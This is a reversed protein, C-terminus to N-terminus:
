PTRLGNRKVRFGPVLSVKYTPSTPQFVQSSISTAVAAPSLKPQGHQSPGSM